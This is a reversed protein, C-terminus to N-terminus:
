DKTTVVKLIKQERSQLFNGQLGIVSRYLVVILACGVLSLLLCALVVVPFRRM